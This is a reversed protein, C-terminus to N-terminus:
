PRAQSGRRMLAQMAARRLPASLTEDDHLRTVVRAPDRLEALLRAV